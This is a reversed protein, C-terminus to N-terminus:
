LHSDTMGIIFKTLAYGVILISLLTLFGKHRWSRWEIEPYIPDMLIALFRQQQFSELRAAEATGLSSQYVDKRFGVNSKLRDLTLATETLNKGSISVLDKREENIQNKLAIIQDELVKIEPANPDIFIRKMTALEIKQKALESELALIIGGYAGVEQSYDLIQNDKQFNKLKTTATNLKENNSTVEKKAFEYQIKYIDKNLKDVFEGASKVLFNNVEFATKSDLGLSSITLIGSLEDLRVSILKRFFDFEDQNSIDQSIGTYIDPLKKKYLKRFPIVKKLDNLVQPSELFTQLYRADEISSSNGLGLLASIGTGFSSNNNGSKRIVIDSRVFYRPRGIGYFYLASFLNLFILLPIIKLNIKKNKQISRGSSSENKSVANSLIKGIGLSDGLM